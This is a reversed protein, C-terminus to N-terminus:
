RPASPSPSHDLLPKRSPPHRAKEDSQESCRVVVCLFRLLPGRLGSYVPVAGGHHSLTSQSLPKSRFYKGSRVFPDLLPGPKTSPCVRVWVIAARGVEPNLAAMGFKIRYATAKLSSSLPTARQVRHRAPKFDPQVCFLYRQLTSIPGPPTTRTYCPTAKRFCFLNHRRRSGENGM